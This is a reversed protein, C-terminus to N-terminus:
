QQIQEPNKVTLKSTLGVAACFAISYKCVTLVTDHLELGMTSNALWVATASSGVTIALKELKKFFPPTEMKLRQKLENIM